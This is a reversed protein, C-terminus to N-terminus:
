AKLSAGEPVVGEEVFRWLAILLKRAVAVIGVRRMRKSGKGYRENFWKTIKSNPQYRMWLWASEIMKARVRKNGAKSIGLEINSSGSSYPTPTLGAAAGVQKGNRFKRWFFEYTLDWATVPGIGKLRQMKLVKKAQDTGGELIEKKEKEVQALQALVLLYREYERKLEKKTNEPLPKGDWQTLEELEELFDKQFRARIGKLVLLSKIRNSHRTKEKKLNDRERNIRKLDEQEEDPIHLVSWLKQEGSEFRILMSLLKLGDIRDTKLRRYRRNVEISASDVVYNKVNISELFRHLWFGDRGAEYCSVIKVDDPMKFHKKAKTIEQQLHVIDGADITKQRKNNYGDGFGLRWTSDSLELSMYLIANNTTNDKQIMQSHQM